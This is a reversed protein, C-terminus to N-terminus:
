AVDGGDGGHVRRRRGSREGDPHHQEGAERLEVEGARVFHERAHGVGSHVEHRGREIRHPALPPQGDHRVGREGVRRREVDEAHRASPSDVLVEVVLLQEVEQARAALVCAVDGRDAAASEQEPGGTQEAAIARGRVPQREIQKWEESGLRNPLADHTIAVPDGAGAHRRSDVEAEGEGSLQEPWGRRLPDLERDLVRGRRREVAPRRVRGRVVDTVCETAVAVVCKM